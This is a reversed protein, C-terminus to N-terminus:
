PHFLVEGDILCNIILSVFHELWWLIQAMKAMCLKYGAKSLAFSNQFFVIGPQSLLAGFKDESAIEKKKSKRERRSYAAPKAFATLQNFKASSSSM